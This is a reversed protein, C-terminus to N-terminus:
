YVFLTRYSGRGGEDVGITPDKSQSMSDSLLAETITVDQAPPQPALITAFELQPISLKVTLPTLGDRKWIRQQLSTRLYEETQKFELYSIGGFVEFNVKAKIYGHSLNPQTGGAALSLITEEDVTLLENLDLGGALGTGVVANQVKFEFEYQNGLFVHTRLVHQIDM